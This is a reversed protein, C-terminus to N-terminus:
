HVSESWVVRCGSVDTWVGQSFRHHGAHSSHVLGQAKVRECWAHRTIRIVPQTNCLLVSKVSVGQATLYEILAEARALASMVDTNILNLPQSVM